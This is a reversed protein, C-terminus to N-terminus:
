TGFYSIWACVRGERLDWLFRGLRVRWERLNWLLKDLHMIGERGVGGEGQILCYKETQILRYLM